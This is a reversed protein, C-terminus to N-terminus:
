MNRAYRKVYRRVHRKVFRRAASTHQVSRQMTRELEWTLDPAARDARHIRRHPGASTRESTRWHPASCPGSPTRQHPGTSCVAIQLEGSLDPAACLRSTRNFGSFSLFSTVSLQCLIWCGKESLYLFFSM